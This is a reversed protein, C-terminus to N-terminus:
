KQLELISIRIGSKFINEVGDNVNFGEELFQNQMLFCFVQESFADVRQVFMDCSMFVFDKGIFDLGKIRNFVEKKKSRMYAYKLSIYNRLLKHVLSKVNRVFVAEDVTNLMNAIHGSGNIRYEKINAIARNFNISEKEFLHGHRVLQMYYIDTLSYRAKPFCNFVKLHGKNEAVLNGFTGTNAGNGITLSCSLSRDRKRLRRNTESHVSTSAGVSLAIYDGNQTPIIVQPDNINEPLIPHKKKDELLASRIKQYRQSTIFTKFIEAMGSDEIISEALCTIRDNIKFYCYLLIKLRLLASNYAWGYLICNKVSNSYVYIDDILQCEVYVRGKRMSQPLKNNLSISGEITKILKDIFDDDLLVEIAKQESLINKEGAARNVLSICAEKEVGDVVIAEHLTSGIKRLLNEIDSFSNM